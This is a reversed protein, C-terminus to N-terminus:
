TAENVSAPALFSYAARNTTHSVGSVCMGRFDHCRRLSTSRPKAPTSSTDVSGGPKRSSASWTKRHLPPPPLHSSHSKRLSTKSAAGRAIALAILL